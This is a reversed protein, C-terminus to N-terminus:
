LAAALFGGLHMPHGLTSMPRVWGAFDSRVQWGVPDAGAAQVLGYGAAVACAAGLATLVLRVRAPSDAAVRAAFYVAAYGLTALLGAHSHYAGLLSRLPDLSTATALGCAVAVLVVACSVADAPFTRRPALAAALLLALAASALILSKISEFADAGSWFATPVLFVAAALVYVAARSALRGTPPADNM